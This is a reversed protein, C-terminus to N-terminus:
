RFLIFFFRICQLIRCLGYFRFNDYRVERAVLQSYGNNPFVTAIMNYQGHQGRNTGEYKISPVVKQDSHTKTIVLNFNVDAFLLLFSGNETYNVVAYDVDYVTQVKKLM